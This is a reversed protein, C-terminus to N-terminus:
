RVRQGRSVGPAGRPGAPRRLRAPRSRAAGDRGPVNGDRYRDAVVLDVEAWLGTLPQYGRGGQYHPRADREHSEILTADLDITAPGSPQPGVARHILRRNVEALARLAPGEDPIWAGAPPRQAM